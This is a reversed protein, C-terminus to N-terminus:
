AKTNGLLFFVDTNGEQELAVAYNEGKIKLGVPTNITSSSEVFTVDGSGKQIFGAIFKSPLTTGVTITVNTAGNNVIITYNNDASTLTYNTGSFDAPYTITKQLNEASADLGKDGAISINWSAFTGSGAHNDVSITVSTSSVASVVGEMYHNADNAFRLRTGVLWGLNTSATFNLTKSGSASIALSTTSTRTMDANVGNTGNTGNTGNAGNTVQFTSTTEDTYNITYTNVLGSTSTLAISVIGRGDQGENVPFDIFDDDTLTVGGVGITVNPTKLLYQHGNLDLFLLEYRDVTYNPSLANAVTAPSTESTTPRLQTIKIVGGVEPSLSGLVFNAIGEMSFNHTPLNSPQGKTGIVYDQSSISNVIQYAIKNSIKTM